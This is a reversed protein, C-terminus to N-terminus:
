GSCQLPGPAGGPAVRSCLVPLLGQAGDQTGGFGFILPPPNEAPVCSAKLHCQFDAMYLTGGEWFLMCHNSRFEKM